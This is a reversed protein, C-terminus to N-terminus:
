WELDSDLNTFRTLTHYVTRGSGPVFSHALDAPIAACGHTLVTDPPSSYCSREAASFTLAPTTLPRHLSRACARHLRQLSAM